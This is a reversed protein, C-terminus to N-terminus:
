LLYLRHRPPPVRLLKSASLRHHLRHRLCHRYQKLSRPLRNRQPPPRHFPIRLTRPILALIGPRAVMAAKRTSIRKIKRLQGLLGHNKPGSDPLVIVPRIVMFRATFADSRLRALNRLTVLAWAISVTILRLLHLHGSFMSRMQNHAQFLM